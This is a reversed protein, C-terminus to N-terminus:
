KQNQFEEEDFYNIKQKKDSSNKMKKKERREKRKEKELLFLKRKERKRFLEQEDRFNGELIKRRLQEENESFIYKDLKKEDIDENTYGRITPDFFPIPKM